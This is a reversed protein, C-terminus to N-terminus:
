FAFHGGVQRHLLWCLVLQDDIELGGLREAEFNRRCQERCGVLHYFSGKATRYNVAAFHRSPDNEVKESVEAQHGSNGRFRGCFASMTSGQPLVVACESRCAYESKRDSEPAFGVHRRYASNTSVSGYRCNPVM